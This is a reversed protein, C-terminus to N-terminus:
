KLFHNFIITYPCFLRFPPKSICDGVGGILGVGGVGGLIFVDVPAGEVSVCEGAVVVEWDGEVVVVDLSCDVGIGAAIVWDVLLRGGIALM